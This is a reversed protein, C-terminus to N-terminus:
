LIVIDLDIVLETTKNRAGSQFHIEEETIHKTELCTDLMMYGAM